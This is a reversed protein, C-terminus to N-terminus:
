LRKIEDSIKDPDIDFIYEMKKTTYNYKWCKGTNVKIAFHPFEFNAYKKNYWLPRKLCFIMKDGHFLRLEKTISSSPLRGELGIVEYTNFDIINKFVCRYKVGWGNRHEEREEYDYVCIIKPIHKKIFEM